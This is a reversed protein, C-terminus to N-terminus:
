EDRQQLPHSDIQGPDNLPLTHRVVIRGAEKWPYRRAFRVPRRVFRVYNRSWPRFRLAFPQLGAENAAPRQRLERHSAWANVDEDPAHFGHGRSLVNQRHVVMRAKRVGPPATM